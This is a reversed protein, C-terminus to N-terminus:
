MLTRIYAWCGPTQPALAVNVWGWQVHRGSIKRWTECEKDWDHDYKLDMTNMWECSYSPLKCNRSDCEPCFHKRGYKAWIRDSIFLKLHMYQNYHKIFQVLQHTLASLTLQPWICESSPHILFLESLKWLSSKSYDKTWLEWKLNMVMLSFWSNWYLWYTGLKSIMGNLFLCWACQM